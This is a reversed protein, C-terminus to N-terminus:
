EQRLRGGPTIAEVVHPWADSRPDILGFHEVGPLERYDIFAHRAALARSSRVPVQVDETGHVVVVDCPPRRELRAAPDAEAYREPVDEPLGGLLDLAADAGFHESAAMRLDAVPALGVVRDLPLDENALWLALHGGASHGTVTTSTARVGVVELLAPLATMATRVDDFTSPFGGALDGKGGVRRYEPSAVALGTAALANAMVRVITRDYAARWFGGHLLVVLPLSGTARSPPLHVDIVGDDHEAYRLVVDPPASARTMADAHDV